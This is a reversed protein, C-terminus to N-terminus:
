YVELCQRRDVVNQRVFGMYLGASQATKSGGRDGQEVHSRRSRALHHVDGVHQVVFAAHVML